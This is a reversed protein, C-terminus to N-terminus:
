SSGFGTGSTDGFGYCVMALQDVRVLTRVPTESRMLSRLACIDDRMRPVAKIITPPEMGDIQNVLDEELLLDPNRRSHLM